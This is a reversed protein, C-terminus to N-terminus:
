VLTNTTHIIHELSVRPAKAREIIQKLEPRCSGCNTGCQLAKGLDELTANPHQSLHSTITNEGVKFCSCITQGQSFELPVDRLLLPGIAEKASVGAQRVSSLWPWPLLDKSPQGFVMMQIQGDKLLVASFQGKPQNSLHVWEGDSSLTNM